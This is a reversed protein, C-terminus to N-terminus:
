YTFVKRLLVIIVGFILGIFVALLVIISRKPEFKIEPVIAPDITNFVFEDQVEALMLSKTQEEIIKYFTSRMDTISTKKLQEELYSLNQTTQSISRARMVDNIDEVLWDLM